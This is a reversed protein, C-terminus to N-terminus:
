LEQFELLTLTIHVSVGLVYMEKRTTGRGVRDMLVRQNCQEHLTKCIAGNLGVQEAQVPYM